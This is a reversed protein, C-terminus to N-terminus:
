MNEGAKQGKGDAQLIKTREQVEFFRLQEDSLEWEEWSFFVEGVFRTSVTSVVVKNWFFLKERVVKLCEKKKQPINLTTAKSWSPVMAITIQKLCPFLFPLKTKHPKDKSLIYSKPIGSTRM